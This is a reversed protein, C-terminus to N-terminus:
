DQEMDAHMQGVTFQKEAMEEALEIVRKKTNCYILAQQIDLNEYLNLLVAGKDNPSPIAIYFQNVKELTLDEKKVLIKVPDNM